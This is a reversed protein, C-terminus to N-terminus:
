GVLSRGDGEEEVFLRGYLGDLAAYPDSNAEVALMPDLDAEGPPEAIARGLMMLKPKESRM